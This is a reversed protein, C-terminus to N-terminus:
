VCQPFITVIFYFGVEVRHSGDPRKIWLRSEKKELINVATLFLALNLTCVCVCKKTSHGRSQMSEQIFVRCWADTHSNFCCVHRLKATCPISGETPLIWKTLTQTWWSYPLSKLVNVFKSYHKMKQLKNLKLYNWTLFMCLLGWFGYLGNHNFRTQLPNLCLLIWYIHNQDVKEM